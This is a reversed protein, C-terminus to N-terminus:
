RGEVKQNQDDQKLDIQYQASATLTVFSDEGRQRLHNSQVNLSSLSCSSALMALIAACENAAVEYLRKRGTEMVKEQEAVDESKLPLRLSYSVSVTKPRQLYSKTQAMAPLAMVALLLVALAPRIARM